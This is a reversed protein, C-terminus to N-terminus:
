GGLRTCLPNWIVAAVGLGAVLELATFTPPLLGGGGARPPPKGICGSTLHFFSLLGESQRHM